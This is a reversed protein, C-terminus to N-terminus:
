RGYGRDVERLLRAEGFSQWRQHGIRCFFSSRSLNAGTGRRGITGNTAVGCLIGRMMKCPIEGLKILFLIEKQDIEIVKSSSSRNNSSSGIQEQSIPFHPLIQLQCKTDKKFLQATSRIFRIRALELIDM